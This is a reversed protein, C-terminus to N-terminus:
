IQLQSCSGIGHGIWCMMALTDQWFPGIQWAYAHRTPGKKCSVMWIQHHQARQWFVMNDGVSQAWCTLISEFTIPSTFAIFGFTLWASSKLLCFKKDVRSSMTAYHHWVLSGKTIFWPVYSITHRKTHQSFLAQIIKHTPRGLHSFSIGVWIQGSKESM